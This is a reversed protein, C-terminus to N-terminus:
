ADTDGVTQKRLATSSVDARFEAESVVDCLTRLTPPLDLDAATEFGAATRRGFVLFRCGLAAIEEIM